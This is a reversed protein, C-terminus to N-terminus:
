VEPLYNTEKDLDLEEGYWRDTTVVDCGVPIDLRPKAATEMDRSFIKKVKKAYRLPTEIIIEDHVPIIINVKRRKLEEDDHIKILALKSMDAASNHTVIGNAIFRENKTNCVDFMDTKENTFVLKKIKM